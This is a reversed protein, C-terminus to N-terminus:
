GGQTFKGEGVGGTGFMLFRALRDADRRPEFPLVDPRTWSIPRGNISLVSITVMSVGSVSQAATELRCRIRDWNHQRVDYQAKAETM